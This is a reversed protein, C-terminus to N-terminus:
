GVIMIAGGPAFELHYAREVQELVGAPAGTAATWLRATRAVVDFTLLTRGDPSFKVDGTDV